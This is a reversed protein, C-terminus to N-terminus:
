KFLIMNDFNVEQGRPVRVPEPFNAWAIQKGDHLLAAGRVRTDESVGKLTIAERLAWGGGVRNFSTGRVEYPAFEVLENAGNSFVLELADDGLLIKDLPSQQGDDGTLPKFDSGVARAKQTGRGKALAGPDNRKRANALKSEATRVDELANELRGGLDVRMQEAAVLFRQVLDPTGEGDQVTVGFPAGAELVLGRIREVPESASADRLRQELGAVYDPTIRRDDGEIRVDRVVDPADGSAGITSTALRDVGQDAETASAAAARSADTGVFTNGFVSRAVAPQVTGPGGSTSAGGGEGGVDGAAAPDQATPAPEGQAKGDAGTAADAADTGQDGTGDGQSDSPAEGHEAAADGLREIEALLTVRKGRTDEAAAIKKRTAPTLAALRPIIEDVTGDLLADIEAKNMTSKAPASGGGAPEMDDSISCIGPAIALTSCAALLAFHRM